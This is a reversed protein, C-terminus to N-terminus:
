FLGDEEQFRSFYDLWASREESSFSQLENLLHLTMVAYTANYLVPVSQSASFVYDGIKSADSRMSGVYSSIRQRLMHGNLDRIQEAVFEKRRLLDREIPFQRLARYVGKGAQILNKSVGM